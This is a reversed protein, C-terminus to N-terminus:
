SALGSGASRQWSTLTKRTPRKWNTPSRGHLPRHGLRCHRKRAQPPHRGAPRELPPCRCGQERRHPPPGALSRRGGTIHRGRVHSDQATHGEESLRAFAARQKEDDALTPNALLKLAAFRRNGELVLYKSGDKMVIPLEAPNSEGTEVLDRALAWFPRTTRMSSGTSPGHDSSTGDPLRPNQPDLRVQSARLRKYEM